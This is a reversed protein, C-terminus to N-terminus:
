LNKIKQRYYQDTQLLLEFNSRKIRQSVSSQSIKLKEALKNQTMNEDNLLEFVVEALPVTWRDMTESAWRFILNLEHDLSSNDSCFILNIKEKKLREFNRGSNVFASGNSLSVRDMKLNQDGIGLSLRVDCHKIMKIQTKIKLIEVFAKEAENLFYQFEDGRFIEWVEKNSFNAGVAKELHALWIKSDVQQSNVIDGTIVAKM